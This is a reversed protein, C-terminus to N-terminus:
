ADKFKCSLEDNMVARMMCRVTMRDNLWKMYTDRVIHSANVTPEESIPDTLIYLIREQELMVKLKRYWSDFNSGTLKDSNLLSYLSLTNAM